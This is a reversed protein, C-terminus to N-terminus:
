LRIKKITLNVCMFIIKKNKELTSLQDNRRFIACPVRAIYERKREAKKKENKRERRVSKRERVRERERGNVIAIRKRQM